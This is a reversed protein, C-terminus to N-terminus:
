YGSSPNITILRFRKIHKVTLLFINFEVFNSSLAKSHYQLDVEKGLNSKM